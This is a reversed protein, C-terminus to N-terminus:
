KSMTYEMAQTWRDTGRDNKRFSIMLGRKSAISERERSRRHQRLIRQLFELPERNVHFNRQIPAIKSRISLLSIPEKSENTWLKEKAVFRFLDSFERPTWTFWIRRSRQHPRRTRDSPSNRKRKDQWVVSGTSLPLYKDCHSPCFRPFFLSFIVGQRKQRVHKEKENESEETKNEQEDWM